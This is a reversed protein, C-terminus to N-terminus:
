LIAKTSVKEGSGGGGGGAGGRKPTLSILRTDAHGRSEQFRVGLQLEIARHMSSLRQGFGQVTRPFLLRESEAITACRKFLEGVPMEFVEGDRRLLEVLAFILGDGESTFEAQTRELRGLLHLWKDSSGLASFIREGFSAFDAMRFALPKPRHAPLADAIQGVRELLAGMIAGRRSELERFIEEETQYAEPREFYLPLLRETVDPRNFRPDRSSIMLIARPSYCVEDNTTYLKRLRYRQGTAYLALTDPLWPIKSDANDLGLVVRNTVAAVFADQRDRQLGTVDFNPGLLLRGILREATTKGSGQPGLFCPIVRTRRLPPFFQQYLWVHLVVRCDDFSLPVDAFSFRNLHWELARGDQGFEPVWATAEPETLFLLDYEGNRTLQWKSGRERVWIGGDGDSVALLGTVPNFFSFTHVEVPPAERSTKAQLIDLTFKLFNETASLGTVATVFRQFPLQEMDYLRREEGHFFFARGDATRLFRGLQCFRDEILRAVRRRKDFIPTEDDLAVSRIERQLDAEVEVGSSVADPQSRLNLWDCLKKVVVEGFIEILGPIGTTKQRAAFKQFTSRVATERDKWEEDKAVETVGSVFKVADEESWGARALMGALALAGEHRNGAAPWHRALLAAAAVRAVAFRLDHGTVTAPDGGREWVLEEGTPHISPPVLTQQGTSRLEVLCDGGPTIFKLPQPVPSAIYWAHSGPKSKRGYTRQTVPLLTHAVALAEASDVDVDVLGGSPAGLLLGINDGSRFCAPLDTENLRLNPWDKIRPAKEGRPIPVPQWGRRLYDRAADLASGGTTLAEAASPRKRAAM